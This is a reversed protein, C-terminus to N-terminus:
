IGIYKNNWRLEAVANKEGSDTEYTILNDGLDLEFLTSDLTMDSYANVGNIEIRKNGFATNIYLVDNTGLNRNIKIFDGTTLNKIVPNISEGKFEIEIPTPADGENHLVVEAGQRGFQMPMTLPFKFLNVFASMTESMDVDKWFPSHCALSIIFRQTRINQPTFKINEVECDIKKTGKYERVFVGNLKPNFVKLLRARMSDLERQDTSTIAGNITIYRSDLTKNSVSSGDEYIGKETSIINTSESIGSINEVLYSTFAGLNVSEGRSNTYIYKKM